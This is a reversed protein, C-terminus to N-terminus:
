NNSLANTNKKYLINIEDFITLGNVKTVGALVHYYKIYKEHTKNWESKDGEDEHSSSRTKELNDRASKYMNLNNATERIRLNIAQTEKDFILEAELTIDTIEVLSEQSPNTIINRLSKILKIYHDKYRTALEVQATHQNIKVQMCAFASAGIAAGLTLINSLSIRSDHWHLDFYLCKSLMLGFVMAAWIIIGALFWQLTKNTIFTSIRTKDNSIAYINPQNQHDSIQDVISNHIEVMLRTFILPLIFLLIYVFAVLFLHKITFDHTLTITLGVAVPANFIILAIINDKCDIIFHTIYPSIHKILKIWKLKIAFMILLLVLLIGLLGCTTIYIPIAADFGLTLNDHKNLAVTVMLSAILYLIIFTWKYKIKFDIKSNKIDSVCTELYFRVLLIFIM